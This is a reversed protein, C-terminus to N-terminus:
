RSGEKGIGSTKYGGFPTEPTSIAVDNVGVMGSELGSSVRWAKPPFTSVFKISSKNVHKINVNKGIRVSHILFHNM